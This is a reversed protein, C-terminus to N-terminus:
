VAVNSLDRNLIINRTDCGNKLIWSKGFQERSYNTKPARGKIKINNLEDLAVSSITNSKPKKPSSATIIKSYTNITVVFIFFVLLIIVLIFRRKRYIDIM